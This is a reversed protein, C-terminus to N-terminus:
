VKTKNAILSIIAREIHMINAIVDALFNETRPLYKEEINNTPSLPVNHLIVCDDKAVSMISETLTYENNQTDVYIVDAKTAAVLHNEIPTVETYQKCKKLLDEESDGVIMIDAGCKSFAILLNEHKSVNDLFCIKIGSLKGLYEYVTLLTALAIIPGDDTCANIVPLLKLSESLSFADKKMITGVFFASIGLRSIAKVCEPTSLFADISSGGLPLTIAKAGLSSAAVEFALRSAGLRNSTVLAVSTNGKLQINEGYETKQKLNIAESLIELIDTSPLAEISLISLSSLYGKSVYNKLDM